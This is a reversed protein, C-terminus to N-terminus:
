RAGVPTRPTTPQPPAAKANRSTPPGKENGTRRPWKHEVWLLVQGAIYISSFTATVVGFFMIWSFPRIVEGAFVLLALIALAVTAHTLVSRPLTENIARNLVQPLPEPRAKRLNERVRDFIIITDNLSYGIVTLLAAVVTLSVELDMLAMFAITAALNHATAIVAAVGFRWDYRFALFILTVLLSLLLAKVANAKLEQGVRPGVIETRMVRPTNTAFSQRLSGEISSAVTNVDATGATNAARVTFERNSGFQQIEAGPYGARAVTSRIEAVNPPKPFELQMLTGGTFEISYNLGGNLAMAAAGALYFAITLGVAIRWPKIFDFNTNHFIRLM